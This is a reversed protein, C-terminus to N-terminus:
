QLVISLQGASDTVAFLNTYQGDGLTGLDFAADIVFDNDVDFGLTYDGADIDLRSGVEGFDIDHAATIVSGATPFLFVDVENVHVATHVFRVRTKSAAISGDLDLLLLPEIHNLVNFAVATYRADSDLTVPTDIVAQGLGSGSATIALSTHGSPVPLYATGDTFTLGSVAPASTAGVFADVAPADPSLHLVRIEAPPPVVQADVFTVDSETQLALSVTGHADVVVFANAIVGQALFPLPFALDEIGNDDLDLGITYTGADVEIAAGATGFDLDSSLPVRDDGIIALVDVQGVGVATHVPRIRIEHPASLDDVLVLAQITALDDFAAVTYSTDPDLVLDATLVAGGIGAGAPTVAVQRQGSLVPAFASGEGFSVGGFAVAGDVLIDVTPADPSLHIARVSPSQPAPVGAVEIVAGAGAQIALFVDGGDNVAFVNLSDGATLAPLDFLLDSIDDDDTDLGVTYQAAPLELANAATGFDLDDVLPSDTGDPNRQLVNVKGVGTATHAIRVRTNGAAPASRDDVLALGALNALEDYATLTYFTLGLLDLNDVDLVSDTVAAGEPTVDIDYVAPSLKIYDTSNAFALADILRSATSDAAGTARGFVAVDPADPSLHLARLNVFQPITPSPQIVIPAGSSPQVTLTTSGGGTDGVTLLEVDTLADAPIEFWLDLLQDGDQDFGLARISADMPIPDTSAEPPLDNFMPRGIDSAFSWANLSADPLANLVPARVSTVDDNSQPAPSEEDSCGVSTALLTTLVLAPFRFSM